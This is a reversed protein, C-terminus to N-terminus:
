VTCIDSASGSRLVFHNLGNGHMSVADGANLGFREQGEEVSDGARGTWLNVV